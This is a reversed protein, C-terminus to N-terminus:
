FVPNIIATVRVTKTEENITGKAYLKGDVLIDVSDPNSKDIPVTDGAQISQLVEPKILTSGYVVAIRKPSAANVSALLKATRARREAIKAARRAEQEAQLKASDQTNNVAVTNNAKVPSAGAAFIKDLESQSLAVNQANFNHENQSNDKRVGTLVNNIEEQSLKITDEVM